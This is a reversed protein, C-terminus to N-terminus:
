TANSVVEWGQLYADPSWSNGDILSKYVPGDADPYHRLDGADPANYGGFVTSWVIIGDPAIRIHM